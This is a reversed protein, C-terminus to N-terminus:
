VAINFSHTLFKHELEQLEEMCEKYESSGSTDTHHTVLYLHDHFAKTLNNLEKQDFYDLNSEILDLDKFILNILNQDYPHQFYVELEEKLQDILSTIEESFVNILIKNQM